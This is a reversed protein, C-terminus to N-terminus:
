ENKNTRIKKTPVGACIIENEVDKVVVSGAGIICNKGIKIYEKVSSGTGVQTMEGVEVGGALTANPSVHVFIDLKCDHEIVCGSNLIAGAGIKVNANIVCQPMIVSGDEITVSTSIVSSPHILTKLNFGDNILKISIKKRIENDGIAVIFPISKDLNKDYKLVDDKYIDDDIYIIKEYENALAIDEVVRGHGSKGYIYISKNSGKFKEMSVSTASSIDDKRLVKLFTMWLIKMDLMFSQNEVYFVDLRFKEDWSIANRGNVQAWGTIGPKVEHRRNQEHSYLPLYEVLLPRPGVFSMDGKLVNFLQPLEDLSLSRITKGVGRLRDDDSLLKGCMDKENSMTRFKYISFIRAKLGPRKQIFLIPSGLKIRILFAVILGIPLFFLILVLSLVTDFLPKVFKSYMSKNHM